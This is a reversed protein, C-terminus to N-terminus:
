NGRLPHRVPKGYMPIDIYKSSIRKIDEMVLDMRKKKEREKWAQKRAEHTNNM